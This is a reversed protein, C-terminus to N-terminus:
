KKFAFYVAAILCIFSYLHNLKLQETRFFILAFVTFVILTIVEQIIKLQFLSFPGSEGMYGIKNAPVQVCYEFFAIFWSILIIGFINLKSFWQLEKFKLHAYWAFTMFINALLLLSITLFSKSFM